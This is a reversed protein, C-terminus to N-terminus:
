RPKAPYRQHFDDVVEQCGEFEGGDANYWHLDVDYGKWNVRYQLRKGRGYFRSDLIDEVEWEEEDEVVIPGPPDNRQGELPDNPDLRLLNPAFEPHIKMTSPLELRYAHGVEALVKFPGLMKDDLKKSPRATTINRSDLFVMDGVKYVMEKRHKDAQEKMTARSRALAQKALALSREMHESIDEAKGAEIRARTTEYETPDPDFSMCPHFGKNLFFASQGTSPSIANNDAFEAMPLWAAWDDQMYSCYSRLYREVDQNARETQGDTQPHYGTSLKAKIGLRLCLSKWIISIFQPGRDSVISRPLGHTRFVWLLLLKVTQETSTGGDGSWCPIYHREKSLRDIVTLIANNGDSQPVGTVFDMSIDLWRQEPIPLPKLLGNIRDRPAKSRRCVYCNRIYRKITTRMKPWCYSRRLLDLTRNMGPHGSAPLDHAERILQTVMSNPVWLRDDKWLVGNLVRCNDLGIGQCTRRNQELATRIETCLQDTRNGAVIQDQISVVEEALDEDAEPEADVEIPQLDFKSEPLLVQNQYLKRDDTAEVPKANPMRTLADAKLNQKGPQYIIKFNYESLKEAWRAQRRTLEKTTMFYKLNLHNTFIKVPIDTCELEPRWHELCRIIALLEKDYIEYNCEAPVMNKSYFAVPHLIGKDDYQSLVGGNVYDSSDTELIAERTSDFHKLVPAATVQQKLGEFATQCAETWEFLQDKRTLKVMPRVIKSFDKIFRRYFNCFGIFAQVHTLSRPVEWNRIVDVKRPDMRLGNTSVLLGLFSTEQVEFECKDIDVQLGAERLKGLVEKVHARHEKLTKSYILIDDLYAQCFKHLCEFLVDNIYHQFSAPGNTLGFPMVRYKYAGFSTVFTTLDESESSMRLKNFAAIIDLRTLYKSGQIRALVEDILPIPYRDRKTLANLKRYDVCFRLSGDKKEAFLIPSACPAKSPTIFEKKLNEELYEKVKQLKYGSMPYLRSRPPQGEGELEIKHDYSRHPPLQTAKEKDFVDLFDHYVVPLKEKLEKLSMAPTMENLEASDEALSLTKNIESITLSFTRVEKNKALTRYAAAGIMAIKVTEEVKVPKLQSTSPRKLLPVPNSPRNVPKPNTPRKLITMPTVAPKLNKREMEVTESPEPRCLESQSSAQSAAPESTRINASSILRDNAPDVLIQNRKLWPNGIILKHQGLRTILLPVMRDKHEQITVSTYLAHTIPKRGPTGDYSRIPKPKSLPVPQIGFRECLEPVLSEDIFAMGTAGTDILAPSRFIKELSGLTVDVTFPKSDFPDGPMSTFCSILIDGGTM